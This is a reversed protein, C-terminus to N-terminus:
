PFLRRLEEDPKGIAAEYAGLIERARVEEGRRLYLTIAGAAAQRNTPDLALARLYAREAEALLGRAQQVDGLFALASPNEGGRRIATDLAEAAGALDGEQAKASALWMWGNADDPQLRTAKELSLLAAATDGEAAQVAGLGTWAEADEPDLEVARQFAERAEEIRGLRYLIGGRVTEIGIGNPYAELARNAWALAEELRNLHDLLAAVALYPQPSVCREWIRASRYAVPQGPLNLAAPDSRRIRRSFWCASADYAVLSWGDASLFLPVFPSAHSVVADQMQYEGLLRALAESSKGVAFYREYVREGFVELRPDVYYPIGKHRLLGGVEMSNFVPGTPQSEVLAAIVDTPFRYEALGAGFQNSENQWLHLRDTTMAWILFLSSALVGTALFPRWRTPETSDLHRVFFPLSAVAFLPINRVASWALVGMALAVLTLFPELRHVSRALVLVFAVTLLLLGLTASYRFGFVLPSQLEAIVDKFLSARAEGFITWTFLFSQVGYPNLLCALWVAATVTWALRASARESRTRPITETLAWASAVLPGLIFLTHSNVWLIQLAPLAWLWRTRLRGARFGHLVYLFWALFLYTAIEPRLILRANSATVALVALAPVALSASTRWGARLAIWGSLFLICTKLVTAGAYGFASVAGALGACFLWRLEVVPNGLGGVALSETRPFGKELVDLGTALLWWFDYDWIRQLCAVFFLIAVAFWCVGSLIKM